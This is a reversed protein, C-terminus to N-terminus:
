QKSERGWFRPDAQLPLPTQIYYGPPIPRNLLDNTVIRGGGNGELKEIRAELAEIRELLVDVTAIPSRSAFIMPSAVIVLLCGLILGVLSALEMPITHKM